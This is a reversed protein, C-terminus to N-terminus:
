GTLIFDLIFKFKLRNTNCLSFFAHVYIPILSIAATSRFSFSVFSIFHFLWSRSSNLKSTYFLIVITFFEELNNSLSRSSMYNTFWSMLRLIIAWNAVKNGHNTAVYKYFLVDGVCTLLSHLLPISYIKLTRICIQRNFM